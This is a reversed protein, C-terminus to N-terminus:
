MARMRRDDLTELVGLSVDAADNRHQLIPPATQLNGLLKLRDLLGDRGGLLREDV